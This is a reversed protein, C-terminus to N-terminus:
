IAGAHTVIWLPDCYCHPKSDCSPTWVSRADPLSSAEMRSLIGQSIWSSKFKILCSQPSINLNILSSIPPAITPPLSRCRNHNHPRLHPSNHFDPKLHIILPVNRRSALKGLNRRNGLLTVHSAIYQGRNSHFLPFV